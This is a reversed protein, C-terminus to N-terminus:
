GTVVGERLWGYRWQWMGGKGCEGAGQGSMLGLGRRLLKYCDLLSVCGPLQSIRPEPPPAFQSKGRTRLVGVLARACTHEM